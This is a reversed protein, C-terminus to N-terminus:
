FPPADQGMLALTVGGKGNKVTQVVV